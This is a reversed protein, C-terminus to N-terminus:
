SADNDDSSLGSFEDEDGGLATWFSRVTDEAYKKRQEPPLSTAQDKLTALKSFLKEFNDHENEEGIVDDFEGEKGLLKDFYQRSDPVLPTKKSDVNKTDNALDKMTINPWIHALLANKVRKTGTDEFEDYDEPDPELEVLEFENELCWNQAETRSVANSGDRDCRDCVVIRITPSWTEVYPLWSELKEFGKQGKQSDFYLLVAETGNAFTENITSKTKLLSLTIKAKYYKTDAAYLFLDMDSNSLQPQCNQDSLIENIIHQIIKTDTCDMANIFVAKQSDM